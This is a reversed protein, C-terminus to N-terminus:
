FLLGQVDPTYSADYRKNDGKPYPEQEYNLSNLFGKKQKKTGIFYVYRHKRPRERLPMDNSIHRNHKQPNEPDYREMWVASLGTYFWNTAQYIYGHHFHSTDAYSVLIMPKPLQKLCGSVFFSGLNKTDGDICLRNLEYVLNSNTAGAVGVCLSNSAPKGFTCVGRLILDGCDYEYLGFAYSIPPKRRAYHKGLLWPYTEEKQIQRVEYKDKISM